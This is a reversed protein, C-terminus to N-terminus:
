WDPFQKNFSNTLFENLQEELSQIREKISDVLDEALGINTEKQVNALEEKLEDILGIIQRASNQKYDQEFSNLLNHFGNDRKNRENMEEILSIAEKSCSSPNDKNAVAGESAVSKEANYLVNCKAFFERNLNNIEGTDLGYDHFIDEAAELARNCEELSKYDRSNLENITDQIIGEREKEEASMPTLNELISLQDKDSGIFKPTRVLNTKLKEKCEGVLQFHGPSNLLRAIPYKVDSVYRFCEEREMLYGQSDDDYFGQHIIINVKILDALKTIGEFNEATDVGTHPTTVGTYEKFM